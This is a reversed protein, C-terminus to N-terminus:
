IIHYNLKLKQNKGKFVTHEETMRVLTDDHFLRIYFFKVFYIPM